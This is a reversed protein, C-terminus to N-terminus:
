LLQKLLRAQLLHNELAELPRRRYPHCSTIDDKYRNVEHLFIGELSVAKLTKKHGPAM